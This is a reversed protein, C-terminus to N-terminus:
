LLVRKTTPYDDLSFEKKNNGTDWWEALGHEALVTAQNRGQDWRSLACATANVLNAMERTVTDLVNQLDLSSSIAAGAAQLALLQRNPNAEEPENQSANSAQISLQAM